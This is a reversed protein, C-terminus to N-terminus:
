YGNATMPPPPYACRADARRRVERARQARELASAHPRLPQTLTVQVGPRAEHWPRLLLAKELRSLRAKPTGVLYHVPPDSDRMERLVTEIPIARDMVWVRRATGYQGEIRDEPFLAVTRPADKASTWCRSPADGPSRRRITSRAWICVRTTAVRAWRGPAPEERRELVSADQWGEQPDDRASVQCGVIRMGVAFFVVLTKVVAAQPRKQWLPEM